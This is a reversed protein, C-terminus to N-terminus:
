HTILLILELAIDNAMISNGEATPHLADLFLSNQHMNKLDLKHTIIPIDYDAAIQNMGQSYKQATNILFQKSYHIQFEQLGKEPMHDGDFPPAVFAINVKNKNALEIMSKLNSLYFSYAEKNFINTKKEDEAFGMVLGYFFYSHKTLFNLWSPPEQHVLINSHWNKVTSYWIDNWMINVLIMDPKVIDKTFIEKMYLVVQSSTYSPVGGNIIYFARNNEKLKKKLYYPYTEEENVGWGFTTSEGLTLIKFQKDFDKPFEKGRFGQSNVTYNNNTFNPILAFGRTKNKQIFSRGRIRLDKDSFLAENKKEQMFVRSGGEVLILLFLLLGFNILLIYLSKKM